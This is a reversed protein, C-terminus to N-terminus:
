IVPLFELQLCNDPWAINCGRLFLNDAAMTVDSMLLDSM